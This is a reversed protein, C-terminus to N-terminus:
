AITINGVANIVRFINNATTCLLWVCDGVNTSAISGTTVTASASGMLIQQSTTYNVTWAGLKGAIIIMDGEAATTPLTYTVGGARDTVYGNNTALTQTATTVDTFPFGAGTVSITPNGGTGNGNTVTVAANGATLTRGTFTGAGDYAVLGASNANIANATAM